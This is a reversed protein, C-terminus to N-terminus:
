QTTAERRFPNTRATRGEPQPLQYDIEWDQQTAWLATVIHLVDDEDRRTALTVRGATRNTCDYTKSHTVKTPSTIADRVEDPTLAMDLIRQTAHRTFHVTQGEIESTTITM